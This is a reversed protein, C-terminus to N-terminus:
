QIYRDRDNEDIDLPPPSPLIAEVEAVTAAAFGDAAGYRQAISEAAKAIAQTGIDINHLAGATAEIAKTYSDQLGMWEKVALEGGIRAGPRMADYVKPVQVRYNQELMGRLKNATERLGAVEVNIQNFVGGIAM